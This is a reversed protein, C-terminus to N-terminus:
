LTSSPPTKLTKPPPQPSTCESCKKHTKPTKPNQPPFTPTPPNQPPTKPPQRFTCFNAFLAFNPLNQWKPCIKSFGFFFGDLLVNILPHGKRNKWKKQGETCNVTKVYSFLLKQTSFQCKKSELNKSFPRSQKQSGTKPRLRNEVNEANKKNKKTKASFKTPM